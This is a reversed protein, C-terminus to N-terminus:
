LYTLLLLGLGYSCGNIIASLFLFSPFEKKYILYLLFAEIFVIVAELSLILSFTAKTPGLLSLFINLAPNTAINLAILSLFFYPYDYKKFVLVIFKWVSIEIILTLILPIFILQILLLLVNM